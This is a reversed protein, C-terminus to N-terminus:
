IHPIAANALKTLRRQPTSIQVTASPFLWIFIHPYFMCTLFLAVTFAWLHFWTSTNNRLEFILLLVMRAPTYHQLLFHNLILTFLCTSFSLHTHIIYIFWSHSSLLHQLFYAERISSLEWLVTNLIKFSTWPKGSFLAMTVSFYKWVEPTHSQNCIFIEIYIYYIM